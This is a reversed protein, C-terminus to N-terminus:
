GDCGGSNDPNFTTVSSLVHVTSGLVAVQFFKASSLLIFAIEERNQGLVV